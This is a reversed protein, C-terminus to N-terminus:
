SNATPHRMTQLINRLTLANKDAKASLHKISIGSSLFWLFGQFDGPSNLKYLVSEDLRL